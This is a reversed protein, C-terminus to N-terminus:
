LNSFQFGKRSTKDVVFFLMFVMAYTQGVGKAPFFFTTYNKKLRMLISIFNHNLDRFSLRCIKASFIVARVFGLQSIRNLPQVQKMIALDNYTM